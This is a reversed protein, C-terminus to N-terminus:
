KTEKSVPYGATRWAGFGDVLWYVNKYGKHAVSEAAEFSSGCDSGYCYFVVPTDTAEPLKLLIFEGRSVDFYVPLAGQIHSHQFHASRRADYFQVHDDFLRKAKTVNIPTVGAAQAEKADPPVVCANYPIEDLIYKNFGKEEFPAASLTTASLILATALYFAKM